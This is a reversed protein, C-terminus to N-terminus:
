LIIPLMYLVLSQHDHTILINNPRIDRHIINQAHLYELGKAAGVAIKLRQEWNLPIMADGAIEYIVIFNFLIYCLNFGCRKEM